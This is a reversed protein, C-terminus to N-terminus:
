QKLTVEITQSGESIKYRLPTEDRSAYDAAFDAKVKQPPKQLRKLRDKLEAIRQLMDADSKKAQKLLGARTQAEQVQEQLQNRLSELATVNVTVRVEDGVPVGRATFKGDEVLAIANESADKGHFAILGVALPKGDSLKVTGSVDASRKAAPGDGKDEKGGDDGKDKGCGTVVVFLGVLLAVLVSCIYKRAARM